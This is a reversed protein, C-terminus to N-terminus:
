FLRQTNSNGQREFRALHTHNGRSGAPFFLSDFKLVAYASNLNYDYAEPQAILSNMQLSQSVTGSKLAMFKLVFVTQEGEVPEISYWSATVRNQELSIGFRTPITGAAVSQLTLFATDAELTFQFGAVNSLDPSQIHVEVLEGAIFRQKKATFVVWNEGRSSTLASGNVDGTKIATFHQNLGSPAPCVTTIKEPFINSLPQAPNPFVYASPM